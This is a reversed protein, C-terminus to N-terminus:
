AKPSAKRLDARFCTRAFEPQPAQNLLFKIPALTQEERLLLDSEPLHEFDAKPWNCVDLNMQSRM